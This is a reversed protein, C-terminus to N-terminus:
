VRDNQSILDYIYLHDFYSWRLANSRSPNCSNELFHAHKPGKQLRPSAIALRKMSKGHDAEGGVVV